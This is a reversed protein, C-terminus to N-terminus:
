YSQSFRVSFTVPVMPNISQLGALDRLRNLGEVLDFQEGNVMIPAQTNVLLRNDALRTVLVEASVTRSHEVITLQLPVRLSKSDNVALDAVSAPDVQGTARIVPYDDAKLLYEWMRDDRIPIHTALGSVPITISLAGDSAWSGQLQTFQHVEAATNNKISVFDLRSREADLQWNASAALSTALMFASVSACVFNKM